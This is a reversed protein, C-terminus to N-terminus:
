WSLWVAVYSVKRRAKLEDVEKKIDIAAAKSEKMARVKDGQFYCVVNVTITDKLEVFLLLFTSDSM